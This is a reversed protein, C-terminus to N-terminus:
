RRPIVNTRLADWMEGTVLGLRWIAIGDLGYRKAIGVKTLISEATETPASIGLLLKEPPVLAKATEVAQKVLTVPEPTSGYDYAMIIIRDALEGLAKYDYGQYASNPAHLTLTLTLNATRVQEALLRVFKNFGDKVAKLQEGDDRYGLGEFDLNVGQYLVAEEMISNVARTMSAEDKLLSSITGDGDTVHVVMETKLNYKNAAKLVKEWGDPRQWGTRSRTLLNGEKDLSYWGLALEGIVDTNGKATEPYPKGFLNTWSSTKSDGLAYFGIVAMEKPPSTIRVGNFSNDWAVQCGFAESFFRLPILTRGNLIQPPVDLTIPNENRYATKNGIQLRISIKGDTASITQTTGDWTVKVNLAEAIVRFPVLTRGNQIVPQVDFAVPLEDILVPIKQQDQAFAPLAFGGAVTIMVTLALLLLRRM